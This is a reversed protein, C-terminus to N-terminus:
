LKRGSHACNPTYLRFPLGGGMAYRAIDAKITAATIQVHGNNHYWQMWQTIADEEVFAKLTAHPLDWRRAMTLFSYPLGRKPPTLNQMFAVLSNTGLQMHSTVSLRSAHRYVGVQTM